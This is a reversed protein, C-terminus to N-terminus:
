IPIPDDFFDDHREIPPSRRKRGGPRVTRSSHIGDVLLTWSERAKGDSGTYHGRSLRGMVGLMDGKTHQELAEANKGFALISIWLTESGTERGVDVAISVSCM